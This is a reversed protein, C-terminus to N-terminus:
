VNMFSSTGFISRKSLTETENGREKTPCCKRFEITNDLIISEQVPSAPKPVKEISDAKLFLTWSKHPEELLLFKMVYIKLIRFYNERYQFNRTLRVKKKIGGV